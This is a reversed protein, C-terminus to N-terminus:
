LLGLVELKLEVVIHEEQVVVWILQELKLLLPQRVVMEVVELAVKHLQFQHDEVQEVVVALQLLEVQLIQVVTVLHQQDLSLLHFINELVVQQEQYVVIQHLEEKVVQVAAVELAQVVIQVQQEVLM